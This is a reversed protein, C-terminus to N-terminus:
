LFAQLFFGFLQSSYNLCSEEYFFCKKWCAPLKSFLPLTFQLSGRFMKGNGCPCISYNLLAEFCVKFCKKESFYRDRDSVQWNSFAHSFFPVHFKQNFSHETASGSRLSFPPGAKKAQGAPKEEKQSEREKKKKEPFLPPVPPRAGWAGGRSGNAPTLKFFM